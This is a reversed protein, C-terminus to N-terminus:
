LYKKLLAISKEVGDIQDELGEFEVSYYGDFGSKKAIEMCKGFDFRAQDGNEDFDYTKAHVLMPNLKFIKELAEYRIDEDFNGYDPCSGFNPRNVLEYIRTVINPNMSAGGNNELLLFIKNSACYDALEQLSQVIVDVDDETSTFNTDVRVCESELEVAVDIWSKLIAIDLKRERNDHNAINGFDLPVSVVKVGCKKLAAKVKSINKPLMISWKRMLDNFDKIIAAVDEPSFHDWEVRNSFISQKPAPEPPDIHLPWLEIADVGFDEKAMRIFEYIDIGDTGFESRLSFSSICLKM